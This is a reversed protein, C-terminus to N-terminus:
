DKRNIKDDKEYEEEESTWRYAWHLGQGLIEEIQARFATDRLFYALGSITGLAGLLEKKFTKKSLEDNPISTFNKSHDLYIKILRKAEPDKEELDENIGKFIYSFDEKSILEDRRAIYLSVELMAVYIAKMHSKVDKYQEPYIPKDKYKELLKEEDVSERAYDLSLNFQCIRYFILFKDKTPKDEDIALLAFDLIKEEISKGFLGM